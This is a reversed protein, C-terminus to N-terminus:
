AYLSHAERWAKKLKEATVGSARAADLIVKERRVMLGLAKPVEKAVEIPIIVAGHRDAHILDGDNVTMGHVNVECAFDTVHIHAHSPAIVGALLQFNPVIMDLDRVSGNTVVGDVGLNKHVTTFVEGWMAGYGPQEDIDQVVSVKPASGEAIYDLYRERHQASEEPTRKSPMRARMMATKAYGVIPPLEPFICHLHQFTFGYGRRQPAVMELLNCITPTDIKRLDDFDQESLSQSM